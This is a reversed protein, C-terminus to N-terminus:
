QGSIFRRVEKAGNHFNEVLLDAGAGALEEASVTGTAVAISRAGIAKAAQIDHATDGLVFTRQPSFDIGYYRCAEAFAIEALQTRSVNHEGFGGTPFYRDLGLVSLKIKAGERVNGTLLVLSGLTASFEVLEAVGPMLTWGRHDLSEAHLYEIYKEKFSLWYETLEKEALDPRSHEVIEQFIMRDLKGAMSVRNLPGTIGLVEQCSRIFSRYGSGGTSLLTGDVDFLFLAPSTSSM